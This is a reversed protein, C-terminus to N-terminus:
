AGNKRGAAVLFDLDITFLRETIRGLEISGFFEGLFRELNEIDDFYFYQEGDRFDYNAIRYRHTGLPIARKQITHEPGVTMLLLTGGPKLVRRYECLGARIGDEDKEYHIV